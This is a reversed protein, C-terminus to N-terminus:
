GCKGMEALLLTGVLVIMVLFTTRLVAGARRELREAAAAYAVGRRLRYDSIRLHHRICQRNTLGWYECDGHPSM